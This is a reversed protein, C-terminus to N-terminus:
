RIYSGALAGLGFLLPGDIKEWVKGLRSPQEHALAAELGAIRIRQATDRADSAARYESCSVVFASCARQLSDHAIALPRLQAVAQTTEAPTTPALMLTDVRVQTLTRTVVREAAELRVTVTEVKAQAVAVARKQPTLQAAALARRTTELRWTQVALSALFLTMVAGITVAWGTRTM